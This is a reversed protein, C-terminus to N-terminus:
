SGAGVLIVGGIVLAVGVIQTAGLSEGLLVLALAVTVIPYASIMPVVASAKGRELALYFTALGLAGCM